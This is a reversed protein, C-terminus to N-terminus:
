THYKTKREDIWAKSCIEKSIAKNERQSVEVIKKNTKHVNVYKSGFRNEKIM